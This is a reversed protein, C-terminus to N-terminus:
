EKDPSIDTVTVNHRAAFLDIQEKSYVKLKRDGVGSDSVFSVTYSKPKKAKVLRRVRLLNRIKRRAAVSIHEEVTRAYKNEFEEFTLLENYNDIHESVFREGHVTFVILMVPACDVFVEELVDELKLKPWARTVPNAIAAITEKLLTYRERLKRDLGVVTDFSKKARPSLRALIDAICLDGAKRAVPPLDLLAEALPLTFTLDYPGEGTVKLKRARDVTIKNEM